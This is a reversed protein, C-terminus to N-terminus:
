PQTFGKLDDVGVVLGGGVLGYKRPAVDVRGERRKM